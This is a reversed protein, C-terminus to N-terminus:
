FGEWSFEKNGMLGRRYFLVVVMLLVFVGGHPLGHSSRCLVRDLTITLPSDFFRLWWEKAATYLFAALVSGTVSGIGGNVVILLIEYTFTVSFTKAEISRMFM